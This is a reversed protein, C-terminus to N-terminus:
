RLPRSMRCGRWPAALTVYEAFLAGAAAALLFTACSASMDARLALAAAAHRM